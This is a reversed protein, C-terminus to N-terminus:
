AEADHHLQRAVQAAKKTAYIDDCADISRIDLMLQVGGRHM